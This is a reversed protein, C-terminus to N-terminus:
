PKGRKERMLALKDRVRQRTEDDLEPWTVILYELDGVASVAGRTKDAITVRHVGLLEAAEAQTLKAMKLAAKLDNM